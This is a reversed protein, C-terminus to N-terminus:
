KMLAIIVGGSQVDGFGPLGSGGGGAVFSQWKLVAMSGREDHMVGLRGGRRGRMKVRGLATQGSTGLFVSFSFRRAGGIVSVFGCAARLKGSWGLM